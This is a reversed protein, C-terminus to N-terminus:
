SHDGTSLQGSLKTELHIYCHESSLLCKYVLCSSKKAVCMCCIKRKYKIVQICGRVRWCSGGGFPGRNFPKLESRKLVPDVPLNGRNKQEQPDTPDGETKFSILFLIFLPRHQVLTGHQKSTHLGLVTECM